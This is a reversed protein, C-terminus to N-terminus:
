LAVGVNDVYDSLGDAPIEGIQLNTAYSLLPNNNSTDSAGVVTKTNVLATGTMNVSLTLTGASVGNVFMGATEGDSPIDIEIFYNVDQLATNFDILQEEGSDYNLRLQAATSTFVLQLANNDDIFIKFVFAVTTSVATASPQVWISYRKNNMTLSTLGINLHSASTFDIYKEGSPTFLASVVAAGVLADAAGGSALLNDGPSNNLKTMTYTDNLFKYWKAGNAAILNRHQMINLASLISNLVSFQSITGEWEDAFTNRAGVYIFPTSGGM